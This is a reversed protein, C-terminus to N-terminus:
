VSASRYYPLSVVSVPSESLKQCHRLTSEGAYRFLFEDTHSQHILLDGNIFKVLDMGDRSRHGAGVEFHGNWLESVHEYVHLTIEVIGRSPCHLRLHTSTFNLAWSPASLFALLLLAYKM